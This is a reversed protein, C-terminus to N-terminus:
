IAKNFLNSDDSKLSYFFEEFDFCKDLKKRIPKIIGSGQNRLAPQGVSTNIVWKKIKDM